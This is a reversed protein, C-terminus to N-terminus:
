GKPTHLKELTYSAQSKMSNGSYTMVSAQDIPTVEFQMFWPLLNAQLPKIEGDGDGPEVEFSISFRLAGFAVDERSSREFGARNNPPSAM